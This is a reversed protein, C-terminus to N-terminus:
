ELRYAEARAPVAEPIKPGDMTEAGALGKGTVNATRLLPGAFGTVAVDKVVVNKANALAIGKACTGTINELVLGDLPKDPHVAAGDVLVPADKVRVNRFLFNRAAPIGELGPVPDEGLLGSNLLNIRLFGGETGAVDLDEAVFNKLFAGRGPRSKIYIAFTRAGTFKCREIRVDRIGGSTESGIGICAFISDAMTCDRIVVDETTQRLTYGELGRGSKLSICDDGTEIDCREIRVHQCSDVDIGDGNGGTSRITLGEVVVNRCATPHVSWMRHYSTSFGELRVGDCRIFEMLAPHRLPDDKTPRGGLADAGEIKGPGSVGVGAADMAYVLGVHGPIWRGEWRVTTVPYDAADGSGALVAGEALRLRTNSRLQIAGTLYRGAPVLVEGGGLVACRDLAAQLAATDKAAGDGKAGFAAERVNLRAPGTGVAPQMTGAVSARQAVAKANRTGNEASLEGHVLKPLMAMGAAVSASRRLFERRELGFGM